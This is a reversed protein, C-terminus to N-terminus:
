KESDMNYRGWNIRSSHQYQNKLKRWVRSDFRSGCEYKHRPNLSKQDLSMWRIGSIESKYFGIRLFRSVMISIGGYSFIDHEQILGDCVIIKKCTNKIKHVDFKTSQQIILRLVKQSCVIKIIGCKRKEDRCWEKVEHDVRLVIAGLSIGVTYWIWLPTRWLTMSGRGNPLACKCCTHWSILIM